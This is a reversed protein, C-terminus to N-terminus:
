WGERLHDLESSFSKLCARSWEGLVDVDEGLRRGKFRDVKVLAPVRVMPGIVVAEGVNLSSLQELLDESLLESAQQVYRQDSPEVLRLIIMNNAQSLAGSDLAKPRQSVLCLGVGFKRGERAIRGIWYKSLTDRDRPALIHAEELVMLLPFPLGARGGSHYFKKRAELVSRLVHSVVVDAMEEDLRGLDVINVAGTRIQSAVPPTLPDLLGTYREVFADIKNLVALISDRDRKPRRGNGLENLMSELKSRIFKLFNEAQITSNYVLKRAESLAERFYREQVYAKSDINLLRLLESTHMYLPNLRTALENVRVSFEASSYESHMDFILVCGGREVIREAIVAVTNSKGAGTIALIALHRTVMKNVDVYVPVDPESLLVGIRIGREGYGFVRALIDRDARLLETGPPPPTRPLEFSRVDGIIRVEGKLYSTAGRDLAKLREVVLPDHIDSTLSISGRVLAKILGLVRRGDYEMVVYQGVRPTIKSIFTASTITAEGITYGVVEQRM